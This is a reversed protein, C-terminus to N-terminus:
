TICIIPFTYEKTENPLVKQPRTGDCKYTVRNGYSFLTLIFFSHPHLFSRQTHFKAELSFKYKELSNLHSIHVYKGNLDLLSYIPKLSGEAQAKVGATESASSSNGM